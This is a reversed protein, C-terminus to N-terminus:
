NGGLPPILRDHGEAAQIERMELLQYHVMDWNGAEGAFWLSGMRRAYEIMMTGLGPQILSLEDLSFPTPTPAAAAATPSAAPPATTPAAPATTPTPPAQSCGAVAAALAVVILNTFRKLCRTLTM